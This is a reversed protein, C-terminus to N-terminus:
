LRELVTEDDVIGWANWFFLVLYWNRKSNERNKLSNELPKRKM